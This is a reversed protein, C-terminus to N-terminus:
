QEPADPQASGAAISRYLLQNLRSTVERARVSDPDAKGLALLLSRGRKTRFLARGGATGTVAATLLGPEIYAGGAIGLGALQRGTPPNMMYQGAGEIHRMYNTMGRVLERDEASFTVGIRAKMKDLASAFRAPSFPKGETTAAQLAQTFIAGRVAQKGENDLGRFISATKGRRDSGMGQGAGIIADLIADPDDNKIATHLAGRKYQVLTDRYFRDARKWAAGAGGGIQEAVRNLEGDLASKVRELAAVERGGLVANQGKRSDRILGGLESRVRHWHEFNGGPVDAWQSLMQAVKQSEPTGTRQAQDVGQAIARKFDQADFEGAENLQSFAREYLKNKVQTARDLQRKASGEVMEHLDDLEDGYRGAVRRAFAEAGEAQAKRASGGGFPMMDVADGTKRIPGSGSLDDPYIDLGQESAFQAADAAEDSLGFARKATAGILDAGGQMVGGAAAGIAANKARSEGEPVAEVGSQAAGLGMAQLLRAGGTKAAAPAFPMGAFNGALRGGGAIFPHAQVNPNQEFAQIQPMVTNRTFDDAVTSNGGSVNNAQQYKELAMQGAGHVVDYLGREVGAEIAGIQPQASQFGRMVADFKSQPAGVAQTSAEQAANEPQSPTLGVRQSFDAFDLSSYYKQHLRTALEEDSLNDYQPYKQRIEQIQM